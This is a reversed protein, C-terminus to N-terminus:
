LRSRRGTRGIGRTPLAGDLFAAHKCLYVSLWRPNSPYRHHRWLAHRPRSGTALKAGLGDPRIAHRACPSAAVRRDVTGSRTKEREYLAATVGSALMASAYYDAVSGLVVQPEGEGGGTARGQFMCIGTMAQLVQDYGAKDKLPGTDGYGTLGCYILRPNIKRLRPHDIGLRPPVSPRFNHVLVDATEVLRDLAERGGEQKLDLVLARKSRNVGVFGRAENALTSPYNRFTEGGLPGGREAKRMM